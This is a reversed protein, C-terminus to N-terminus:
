ATVEQPTVQVPEPAMRVSLVSGDQGGTMTLTGGAEAVRHELGALGTRPANEDIGVGDDAVCAEDEGVSITCRHARSHRVVNTVGERIVYGFLEAREDPLEPLAAPTRAEIGAAELVSRASAIEGAARVQQMGSATARVDSLSQRAIREIEAVQAHAAEPDADILRNALQASVTITTLSHGLIDHLDRGIREREAAVALVANRQEATELRERIIEREIAAGMGYGMGLGVLALAISIPEDTLLAAVITAVAIPVVIIRSGRWPLVVVHEMIVFMVMYLVGSGLLVTMVILCLWSAAIWWVRERNGYRRLGGSFLFLLSFILSVLLILVIRWPSTESLVPILVFVMFLLSPATYPLAGAAHAAAVVGRPTFPYEVCEEDEIGNMTSSEALGSYPRSVQV